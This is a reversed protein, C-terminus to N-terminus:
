RDDDLVVVELQMAPGGAREAGLDIFFSERPEPVSDAILPVLLVQTDAGVAFRAVRAGLVAYDEDAVATGDTTWWVVSAPEDLSGTRGILVRV